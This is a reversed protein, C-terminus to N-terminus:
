YRRGAPIGRLKRKAIGRFDIKIIKFPSTPISIINQSPTASLHLSSLWPHKLVETITLCEIERDMLSFLLHQCERSLHNTAVGINPLSPCVLSFLIMGISRLDENFSATWSIETAFLDGLTVTLTEEEVFINELDLNSHIIGNQHLHGVASAIQKFLHRATEEDVVQAQGRALLFSRLTRHLPREICIQFKDVEETVEKFKVINPHPNKTLTRAEEIRRQWHEGKGGACKKVTVITCVSNESSRMALQKESLISSSMLMTATAYLSPRQGTLQSFATSVLGISILSVLEKDM